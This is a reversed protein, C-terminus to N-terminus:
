KARVFEITQQPLAAGNVRAREIQWEFRDAGKPTLIATTTSQSGDALTEDSEIVWSDGSAYWFGEGFGGLTDFTWCKLRGSVPDYGIRQTGGVDPQGERKVVFHREVFAGGECPHSSVLVTANDTLGTWEGLLWDLQALPHQAATSEVAHNTKDAPLVADEAAALPAVLMLVVLLGWRM